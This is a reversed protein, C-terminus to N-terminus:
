VLMPVVMLWVPSVRDDKKEEDNELEKLLVCRDKSPVLPNILGVDVEPLPDDDALKEDLEDHPLTISLCVEVVSVKAKAACVVIVFVAM